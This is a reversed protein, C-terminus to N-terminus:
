TVPTHFCSFVRTMAEVSPWSSPRALFGRLKAEMNAATGRLYFATAKPVSYSLDPDLPTGLPLAWPLGPAFPSLRYRRRQQVLHRRRQRQLRPH